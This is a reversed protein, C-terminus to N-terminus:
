HHQEDLKTAHLIPIPIFVVYRQGPFGMRADYCSISLLYASRAGIDGRTLPAEASKNAKGKKSAAPAKSKAKGKGKSKKGDDEGDDDNDDDAAATIDMSDGGDGDGDDDDEGAAEVVPLKAVVLKETCGEAGCLYSWRLLSEYWTATDKALAKKKWSAGAYAFQVAGRYFRALEAFFRRARDAKELHDIGAASLPAQPDKTENSRIQRFREMKVTGMRPDTSGILLSALDELLSDMTTLWLSAEPACGYM